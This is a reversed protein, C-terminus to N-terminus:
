LAGPSDPNVVNRKADEDLAEEHLADLDPEHLDENLEPDYRVVFAVPTIDLGAGCNDCSFMWGGFVCHRDGLDDGQAVMEDTVEAKCVPCAWKQTGDFTLEVEEKPFERPADFQGTMREAEADKAVEVAGLYGVEIRFKKGDVVVVAFQDFSDRGQEEPITVEVNEMASGDLALELLERSTM